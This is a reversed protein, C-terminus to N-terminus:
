LAEQVARYLTNLSTGTDDGPLICELVAGEQAAVFSPLHQLLEDLTTARYYGLCFQAVAQQFQYHHPMKFLSEFDPQEAAPLLSFIGGGNNNLVIIKVPLSCKKVLALSNLDHLFATDGVFLFCTKSTGEAIGAASALLGDIGSAGRNTYIASLEAGSPAYSDLMRVALSNGALVTCGAPLAQVVAACLSAEHWQGSLEDGLLTKCRQNARQWLELHHNKCLSPNLYESTRAYALPLVKATRSPDLLTDTEQLMFYDANTSVIFECLRKSVLRAGFQVILDPALPKRYCQHCIFMDAHAIVNENMSFRHQSGIDAIVPCPLAKLWSALHQYQRPSIAGLVVVCHKAAAIKKQLLQLTNLASHYPSNEVANHYDCGQEVVTAVLEEAALVRLLKPVEQEPQSVYLPEDFQCNLHVPRSLHKGIGKLATLQRKLEAANGPLICNETRVVNDGFIKKQHIAQNAGCGLLADPRDASIVILGVESEYAEIVAPHLNAVATGSTTIVVTPSESAKAVSLAFFGLGREDFHTHINIHPFHKTARGLALALPASRSGPALCFHKVGREIFFSLLAFAWSANNLLM